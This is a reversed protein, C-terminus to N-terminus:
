ARPPRQEEIVSRATWSVESTNASSKLQDEAVPRRGFSKQWLNLTEMTMLNPYAGLLRRATIGKLHMTARPLESEDGLRLLV